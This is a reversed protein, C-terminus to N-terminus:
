LDIDIGDDEEVDMVDELSSSPSPPTREDGEEMDVIEYEGSQFEIFEEEELEEIEEADVVELDASQVDELAEPAALDLSEDDEMPEDVIAEDVVEFEGTQLAELPEPEGSSAPPTVAGITPAGELLADLQLDAPLSATLAAARERAWALVKEGDLSERELLEALEM